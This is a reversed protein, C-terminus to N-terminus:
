YNNAKVEFYGQPHSCVECVQPAEKGIHIHGCNRCVWVTNEEKKYLSNEKLQSILTLYREEHIKEVAGVKKFLEAIHTFGEDEAVKAFEPYMESNEFHEGSAGSELNELTSQLGGLITFWIKAHAQENAATERFIEGIQMYGESEALDAFYTYKARAQTEGAFASMLNAETKSGKLEM